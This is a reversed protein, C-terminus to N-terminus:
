ATFRRRRIKIALGVVGLGLLALTSPEPVTSFTIVLEPRFEASASDASHLILLRNGLGVFTSNLLLGANGGTLWTNVLSTLQASTGAFTLGGGLAANLPTSTTWAASALPSNIYDTGATGLGASGAWPTSPNSRLNWSPEGSAAATFNGGGEIWNANAAAIPYVELTSGGSSTDALSSPFLNLTISQAQNFGAATLASLDFRILTRRILSGSAYDGVWMPLSAGINSTASTSSITTDQTGTYTGGLFPTPSGDKFTFTAAQAPLVTVVSGVITLLISAACALSTRNTGRNALAIMYAVKM